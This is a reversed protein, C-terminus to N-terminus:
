AWTQRMTPRYSQRRTQPASDRKGMVWAVKEIGGRLESLPSTVAQASPATGVESTVILLIPLADVDPFTSRLWTKWYPMVLPKGCSM